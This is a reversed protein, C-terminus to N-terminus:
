SSGLEQLWGRTRALSRSFPYGCLYGGVAQDGLYQGVSAAYLVPLLWGLSGAPASFYLYNGIWVLLVRALCGM